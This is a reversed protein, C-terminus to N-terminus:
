SHRQFHRYNVYQMVETLFNLILHRLEGQRFQRLHKIPLESLYKFM